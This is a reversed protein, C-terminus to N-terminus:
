GAAAGRNTSSSRWWEWGGTNLGDIEVRLNNLLRVRCGVMIDRTDVDGRPEM